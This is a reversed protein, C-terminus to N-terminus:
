PKSAFDYATGDPKRYNTPNTGFIAQLEAKTYSDYVVQPLKIETIGTITRHFFFRGLPFPASAGAPKALKKSRIDVATIGTVRGFADKIKSVNSPITLTGSPTFQVGHFAGSEITELNEPFKFNKLSASMFSNFGITKLKSGAEFVVSPFLHLSASLTQGLNDFAARGITEVNRPIKLTGSVSANRYFGRPGIKTLTSPLIIETIMDQPQSIGEKTAKATIIAGSVSFENPKIETVCEKVTLTFKKDASPGKPTFTYRNAGTCPKPSKPPDCSVLMFVLFLFLVPKVGFFHSKCRFNTHACFVGQRASSIFLKQASNHSIHTTRQANHTTRQAHVRHLINFM